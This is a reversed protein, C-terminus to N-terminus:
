SVCLTTGAHTFAVRRSAHAAHLGRFLLNVMSTADSDRLMDAAEQPAFCSLVQVFAAADQRADREASEDGDSLVAGLSRLLTGVDADSATRLATPPALFVFSAFSRRWAAGAGVGLAAGSGVSAVGDVGGGASSSLPFPQGLVSSRHRQSFSKLRNAAIVGVVAARLSVALMPRSSPVCVCVCVCVCVVVVLDATVEAGLSPSVSSLVPRHLRQVHLLTPPLVSASRHRRSIRHMAVSFSVCRLTGAYGTPARRQKQSLAVLLVVSGCRSRCRGRSAEAADQAALFNISVCDLPHSHKFRPSLVASAGADTRVQRTLVTKQQVLERARNHLPLLARCLLATTRLLVKVDDTSQMLLVLM